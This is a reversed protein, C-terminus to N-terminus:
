IDTLGTNVLSLICAAKLKGSRLAIKILHIYGFSMDADISLFLAWIQLFYILKHVRLQSFQKLLPLFDYTKYFLLLFLILLCLLTFSSPFFNLENEFIVSFLKLVLNWLGNFLDNLIDILWFGDWLRHGVSM